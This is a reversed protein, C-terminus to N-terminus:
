YEKIGIEEIENDKKIQMEKIKNRISYNIFVSLGIGVCLGYIPLSSNGFNESLVFGFILLGYVSLLYGFINLLNYNLPKLGREKCVSSIKRCTGSLIFIELM